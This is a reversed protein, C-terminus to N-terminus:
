LPTCLDCTSVSQIGLGELYRENLGLNSPARFVRYLTNPPDQYREGYIMATEMDNEMNKNM